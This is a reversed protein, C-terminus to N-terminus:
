SSDCDSSDGTDEDICVENNEAEESEGGSSFSDDTENTEVRLEEDKWCFVGDRRVHSVQSSVISTQMRVEM